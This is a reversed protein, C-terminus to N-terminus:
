EKRVKYITKTDLFGEDTNIGDFNNNAVELVEEDNLLIPFYFLYNVDKNLLRTGNFYPYHYMM